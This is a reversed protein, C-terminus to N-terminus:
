KTLARSICGVVHGSLKELLGQPSSHLPALLGNAKQEHGLVENGANAVDVPSLDEELRSNM